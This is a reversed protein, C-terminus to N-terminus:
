QLHIRVQSMFRMVLVM